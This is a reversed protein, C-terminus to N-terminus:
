RRSSNHPASEPVLLVIESIKVAFPKNDPHIRFQDIADDVWVTLTRKEGEGAGVMRRFNRESETFHNQDSRRWFMQFFNPTARDSGSGMTYKLRVAFIFRPEQLAFTLFSDKGPGHAIEDHWVIQRSVISRVQFFETQYVPDDKMLRFQGLGAQKLQRLRDALWANLVEPTQPGPYLTPWYREALIFPPTGTLLDEEFAEKHASLSRAWEIGILQNSLFATCMLSFLVMQLLHSGMRGIQTIFYVCCLGLSVLLGYHPMLGADTLGSRGVGIAVTLCGIAGLFLFPGVARWREQPHRRWLAVLIAGATLFLGLVGLGAFKWYGVPAWGFAMSLAQTSTKIRAKLDTSPAHEAFTQFGIFYVPVLLLIAVALGLILSANRKGHFDGSVWHHVGACALWLALAPVFALGPGGCGWLLVLCTGVLFAKGLALSSRTGVIILLVTGAVVAIFPYIAGLFSWLFNEAQSLHLFTLPFFADAYSTWGRLQKAAQIMAGALGALAFVSLVMGARLDGHALEYLVFFLLKPIPERHEANFRWLWPVLPERGTLAGVMDWEDGYFVIGNGYQSVYALAILLAITWAGWVFVRAGQGLEVRRDVNADPRDSDSHHNLAM